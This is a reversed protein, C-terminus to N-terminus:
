QESHEESEPKDDTKETKVVKEQKTPLVIRRAGAYHNAHYGEFLKSVVVGKGAGAAHVFKGDGVFIGVHSIGGKYTNKFFVLDGPQLNDKAVPKGKQFQETSTRPLMMGWKRYVAQTLGSCDFGNSTTGGFRYRTGRYSLAKQALAVGTSNHRDANKLYKEWESNTTAAPRSAKSTNSASKEASPATKESETPNQPATSAVRPLLTISLVSLAMATNRTKRLTEAVRPTLLKM